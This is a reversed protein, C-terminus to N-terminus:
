QVSRAFDPITGYAMLSMRKLEAPMDPLRAAYLRYLEALIDALQAAYDARGANELEAIAPYTQLLWAAVIKEIHPSEPM